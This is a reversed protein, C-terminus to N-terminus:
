ADISHAENAQMRYCNPAMFERNLVFRLEKENLIIRSVLDNRDLDIRRKAAREDMMSALRRRVDLQRRPERARDLGVQQAVDADINDTRRHAGFYRLARDLQRRAVNTPANMADVDRHARPALLTRLEARLATTRTEITTQQMAMRLALRLAATPTEFRICNGHLFATM